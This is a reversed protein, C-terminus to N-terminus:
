MKKGSHYLDHETIIRFKMGNQNCYARAAAWKVMNRVYQAQNYANQAGAITSQYAPFATGTLFDAQAKLLQQQEPTMQVSSTSSGKGMGM